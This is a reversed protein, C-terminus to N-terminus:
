GPGCGCRLDIREAILDVARDLAILQLRVKPYRLLFRAPPAFDARGARDPVSGCGAARSAQAEAVLTEAQELELAHGPM